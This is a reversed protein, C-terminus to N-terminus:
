EVVLSNFGSNYYVAISLGSALSSTMTKKFVISPMCM